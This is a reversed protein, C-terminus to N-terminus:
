QQSVSIHRDNGNGTLIVLFQREGDAHRRNNNTPWVCTVVECSNLQHRSRTMEDDFCFDNNQIQIPFLNGKKAKKMCFNQFKGLSIENMKFSANKKHKGIVQLIVISAKPYGDYRLGAPVHDSEFDVKVYMTQAPFTGLCHWLEDLSIQDSSLFHACLLYLPASKMITGVSGTSHLLKAALLDGAVSQVLSRRYESIAYFKHLFETTGLSWKRDVASSLNVSSHDKKNTQATWKVTNNDFQCESIWFMTVKTDILFGHLSELFLRTTRSSVNDIDLYFDWDSTSHALGYKRSGFLKVRPCETSSVQPWIRNVAEQVNRLRTQFDGDSGDRAVSSLPQSSSRAYSKAKSQTHMARVFVFAQATVIVRTCFYHQTIAFTLSLLASCRM